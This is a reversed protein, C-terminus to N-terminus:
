NKEAQDPEDADPSKESMDKMGEMMPCEDASKKGMEMHQVMHKMMEEEMKAISADRDARQTVMTTLVAAIMDTKDGQPAANMKAIQAALKEDQDKITEKMKKKEEMMEKCPQMMEHMGGKMPMVPKEEATAASPSFTVLAFTSALATRIFLKTKTQQNM